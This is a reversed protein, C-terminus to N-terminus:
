GGRWYRTNELVKRLTEIAENDRVRTGKAIAIAFTLFTNLDGFVKKLFHFCKKWSEGM